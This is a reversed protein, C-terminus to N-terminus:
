EIVIIATQGIDTWAHLFKAHSTYNRVCKHSRPVSGITHLYEQHPPFVRTGNIIKLDVPVGHIYAGGNFRIGYPAYGAIQRTIDDLYLFQDVKQIAMFYGLDTPEKHRAQEGTTAYIYSVLQWQGDSWEFVGENQNHRDVVIVKTLQELSNKLSVFKKPVYFTGNYFPVHVKYFTDTEAIISVLTGDTLYRFESELSAESYGPASQYRKTGFADVTGGQYLPATGTWNKYNSIYATVNADVEAQLTTVSEVMKDFQFTRVDGLASLIFGHVIQDGMMQEVEYWINTDYSEVFVGEVESLLRVKDFYGARGVKASSADPWERINAGGSTILLYDHYVVYSDYLLNPVIKAPIQTDFQRRVQYAIAPAPEVLAPPSDADKGSEALAEQQDAAAEDTLRMDESLDEANINEEVVDVPEANNQDIESPETDAPSFPHETETPAAPVTEQITAQSTQTLPTATMNIGPLNCASLVLSCFVLTCGIILAAPHNHQGNKM